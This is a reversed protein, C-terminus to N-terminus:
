AQCFGSSCRELCFIRLFGLRIIRAIILLGASLAALVEALALRQASGIVAMGTLAGASYGGDCLRRRRCPSPILRFTRFSYDPHPHHLPRHNRPYGSIKRYGMVEPIALAALTLGAIIDTLAQSGKIPIIGQFFPLRM